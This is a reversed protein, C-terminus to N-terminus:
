SEVVTNLSKCYNCIGKITIDIGITQFDPNGTILTKISEFNEVPYDYLKRCEICRFHPHEHINADYRDIGDESPYRKLINKASLGSLNRYVTAIGINPMEKRVLQFVEEATPHIPHDCITQYILERQKSHKLGYGGFHYHNDNVHITYRM